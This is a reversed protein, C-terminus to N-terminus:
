YMELNTNEYKSIAIAEDYFQVFFFRIMQILKMTHNM